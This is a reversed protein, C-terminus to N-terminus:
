NTYVAPSGSQSSDLVPAYKASFFGESFCLISGSTLPLGQNTFSISTDTNSSAGTISTGGYTCTITGLITNLVVVTSVPTTTDGVVLPDGSSDSVTTDYPLSTITLSQVGTTGFVNTTCGTFTQSTLSETATGSAAPNATVTASFASGTCSVGSTSTASNYFTATTGSALSATLVDGVAVNSGGASGYTLVDTTAASATAAPLAAILATVAAIGLYLYRRM